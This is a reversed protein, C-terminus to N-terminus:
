ALLCVVVYATPGPLPTLSQGSPKLFYPFLPSEVLFFLFHIGAHRPSKLDAATKNVRRSKWRVKSPGVRANHARERCNKTVCNRVAFQSARARARRAM